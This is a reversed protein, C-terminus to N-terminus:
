AVKKPAPAVMTPMIEPKYKPIEKAMRGMEPGITVM